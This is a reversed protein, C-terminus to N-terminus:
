WYNLNWWVGTPLAHKTLFRNWDFMVSHYYVANEIFCLLTDDWEKDLKCVLMVSIHLSSEPLLEEIVWDIVLDAKCVLLALCGTGHLGPTDYIWPADPGFSGHIESLGAILVIAPIKASPGAPGAAPYIGLCRFVKDEAKFRFCRAGKCKQVGYFMFISLHQCGRKM